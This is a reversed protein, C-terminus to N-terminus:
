SYQYNDKEEENDRVIDNDDETNIHNGEEENDEWAKRIQETIDVSDFTANKSIPYTAKVFDNEFNNVWVDIRFDGGDDQDTANNVIMIPLMNKKFVVDAFSYKEHTSYRDSKIHLHIYYGNKILDDLDYNGGDETTFNVQLTLVRSINSNFSPYKTIAQEIKFPYDFHIKYDNALTLNQTKTSSTMQQPNNGFNVDSVNNVGSLFENLAIADDIDQWGDPESYVANIWVTILASTAVVLFINKKNIEVM